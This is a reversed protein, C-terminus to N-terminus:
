QIRAMPYNEKKFKGKKNGSIGALLKDKSQLQYTIKQPFDHEPNEFVLTNNKFSTLKFRVPQNNNQGNVTPIYFMSKKSYVLAVSEQQISDGNSKVFFSKGQLFSDNIYKWQEVVAGKAGLDMKWSGVLWKIKPIHNKQSYASITLLLFSFLLYKKM